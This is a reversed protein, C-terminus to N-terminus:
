QSSFHYCAIGPHQGWREQYEKAREILDKDRKRFADYVKLKEQPSLERDMIQLLETDLAKDLKCWALMEEHREPQHTQRPGHPSWIFIWSFLSVILFGGVWEILSSM